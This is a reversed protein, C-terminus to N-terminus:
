EEWNDTRFPVLPMGNLDHIKGIAFNRFCYRVSQIEEVEPSSVEITLKDRNIRADASHFVKDAGAVEFGELADNPTFGQWADNFSLIAKNGLNDMSKFTPFTHPIGPIGYTYTAALQAMRQGIPQKNRAHIDDTEDPYVLDSTCVIWAYPTDAAAKQQAERFLAANTGRTNGYDWGPLEVFYFPMTPNNWLRRWHALMDAQRAGYNQHEGVNSEGQNWLFGRATYGAVPLLMGNYMVGVRKYDDINQKKEGEYDRDPYNALIEAPEWGEVKSGGYAISVIGVPVDAIDRLATAFFWAVASFNGANEPSSIVWTADVDERPEYSVTKPVTIFRIGHGLKRSFAIQRGGDEVPQNWFGRLPMEMNSQGSAIWVEGALINSFTISTNDSNDTVSLSLPTYSAAPTAVSLKWKGAKDAVASAESGWSGRATVQSGPTAKGWLSALTDAQLVMNDSFIHPMDVKAQAATSVLLSAIFIVKKM